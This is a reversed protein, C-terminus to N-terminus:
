MMFRYIDEFNERECRTKNLKRGGFGRVTCIFRYFSSSRVFYDRMTCPFVVAFIKRTLLSKHLNTGNEFTVSNNIIKCDKKV